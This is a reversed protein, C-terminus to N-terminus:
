TDLSIIKLYYSILFPLSKDLILKVFHLYYNFFLIKM